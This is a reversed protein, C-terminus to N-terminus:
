NINFREKALQAEIAISFWISFAATSSFEANLVCNNRELYNQSCNLYKRVQEQLYDVVTSEPNKGDYKDFVSRM